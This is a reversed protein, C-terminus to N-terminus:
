MADALINQKATGRWPPRSNGIFKQFLMEFCIIGHNSLSHAQKFAKQSIILLLFSHCFHFFSLYFHKFGLNSIANDRYMLSVGLFRMSVPLSLLIGRMERRESSINPCHHQHSATNRQLYRWVASVVWLFQHRNLNEAILQM